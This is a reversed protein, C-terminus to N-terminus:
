HSIPRMGITSTSATLANDYNALRYETPSQGNMDRFHRSFYFPDSYGCDAAIEKVSRDTTALLGRAHAMRLSTHHALVGGGTARHFLGSLHSASVGVLQALQGVQVRSELRDALYAMARELPDGQEPFYRDTALLTLLRWAVGSAAILRPITRGREMGTVLEDLLAVAREPNRLHVTPAVPTTGVAGLLEAVDSGRVHCWWITWPLSGSAGYRHAAGAEIVVAAGAGLRTLNGEIEVWGTGGVCVIVIAEGAGSKRERYHGSAHRFYGADSVLLRRTVPQQLAARVIEVPVQCRRDVDFSEDRSVPASENVEDTM